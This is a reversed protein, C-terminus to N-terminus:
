TTLSYERLIKIKELVDDVHIDEMCIGFSGNKNNCKKKQFFSKSCQCGKPTLIDYSSTYPGSRLHSTPGYLGIVKVSLASAVHLLGTDCSLLCESGSIIKAVESLSLKGILNVTRNDLGPILSESDFLASNGSSRLENIWEGLSEKEDEGGLLVVQCDKNQNLFKKALMIWREYPWARNPREKGVGIVFCVYKGEKLGYKKLLDNNQPVCLTKHSLSMGSIEPDYTKAFNIVAHIKNDKKYQYFRTARVCFLNSFLFNLSTHLNFFYFVKGPELFQKFFNDKNKKDYEWVMDIYPTCNRLLEAINPSTIYEISAQEYKKRLYNVLPLTHIVDGIGGLRVFVIRKRYDLTNKLM